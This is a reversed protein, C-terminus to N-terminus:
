KDGKLFKDIYEQLSNITDSPLTDVNIDIGTDLQILDTKGDAERKRSISQGAFYVFSGIILAIVIFVVLGKKNNGM